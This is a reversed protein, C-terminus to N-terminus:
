ADVLLSSVSYPGLLVQYENIQATSKQQSIVAFRCDYENKIKQKQLCISQLCKL